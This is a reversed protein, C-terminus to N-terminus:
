YRFDSSDFGYSLIFFRFIYTKKKCNIRSKDTEFVDIDRWMNVESKRLAVVRFMYFAIVIWVIVVCGIYITEILEIM